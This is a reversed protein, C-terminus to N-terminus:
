TNPNTRSKLRELVQEASSTVPTGCGEDSLRQVLDDPRDFVSLAAYAEDTLDAREQRDQLKTLTEEADSLNSAHTVSSATRVSNRVKVMRQGRELSRFRMEAKRLNGVLTAMDSEFVQASKQLADREDELIAIATATEQALAEKGQQLADCARSELDAINTKTQALRRRDQEQQAKALAVAKRASRVQKGADTIQQDLTLLAVGDGSQETANRFIAKLTAIM